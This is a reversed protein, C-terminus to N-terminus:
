RAHAARDGLHVTSTQLPEGEVGDQERVAVHDQLVGLVCGIDVSQQSHAALPVDRDLRDLRDRLPRPPRFLMGSHGPVLGKDLLRVDIEGDVPNETLGADEEVTGSVELKEGAHEIRGLAKGRTGILRLHRPELGFM